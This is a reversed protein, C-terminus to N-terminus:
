SCSNLFGGCHLVGDDDSSDEAETARVGDPNTYKEHCGIGRGKLKAELSFAMLKLAHLKGVVTWPIGERGHIWNDPANKEGAAGAERRQWGLWAARREWRRGTPKHSSRM